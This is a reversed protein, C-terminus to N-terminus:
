KPGGLEGCRCREGIGVEVGGKGRHIDKEFKQANNRCMRDRPTGVEARRKRGEKREWYGGRPILMNVNGHGGPTIKVGKTKNVV